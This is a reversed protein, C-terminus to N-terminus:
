SAVKEAARMTRARKREGRPREARSERTKAWMARSTARSRASRSPGDDVGRRAGSPMRPLDTLHRACTASSDHDGGSRGAGISAAGPPAEGRGTEWAARRM